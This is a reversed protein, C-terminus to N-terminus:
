DTGRDLAALVEACADIGALTSPEIFLQVEFLGAAAMRRLAAAIEVPSGALPPEDRARFASVWPARPSGEFGPLDVMVTTTRALTAPDRGEAICAADVRERYPALREPANCTWINWRDAYRATLRLMREGYAGILIPPGAPRPGRPRLTCDRAEYFRGAFDVHGTRLLPVIIQLAEEFRGVLRDTPYGHAVLEQEYYGSGLGLVLRGGSIEDVTDAMKALLAPNRFATCTVLTGLEVRTTVAALAALLSWCEWVGRQPESDDELPYRYWFHDVLWLADFGVTEARQALELIDRWRATGGAMWDEIHPLVLGVTLPRNSPLAM